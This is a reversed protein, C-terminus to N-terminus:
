PPTRGQRPTAPGSAVPVCEMAGDQGAAPRWTDLGDSTRFNLWGTKRSTLIDIGFRTGDRGWDDIDCGIRSQGQRDRLMVVGPAQQNKRLSSWDFLLFVEPRGDGNLDRVIFLLHRTPDFNMPM